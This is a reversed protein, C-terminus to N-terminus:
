DIPQGCTWRCRLVVLGLTLAGALWTSPEPVSSSEPTLLFAHDQGSPDIGYGVIDGNDNIANAQELDWGSGPALLSNLDLMRGASDVFADGAGLGTTSSGVIQGSNNVGFAKSFNGGLTGLDTMTGGSDSFAHYATNGSTYSFGVIQGSNNVGNAESFYGGLTGLDTVTYTQGDASTSLVMLIVLALVGFIPTAQRSAACM